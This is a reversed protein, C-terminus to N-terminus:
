LEIIVPLIIPRRQLQRKFYGKLVKRVRAKLEIWDTREGAPVAALTERVLELAQDLVAKEEEFILGKTTIEPGYVVEGSSANIAMVVMAVGDRSLHKRDHIIVDSSEGVGKGDVLIKGTEISGAISIDEPTLEVLDGDTAVIINEGALGQERALAAHQVLHRYEGHVPMFAQPKVLNLLLRLEERHAHGSTHTFALPRYLVRAGARYLRNILNNIAKENGPIFRSSFIITDDGHVRLLRNNGGALIALGSMPEGQSGTTVLLSEAPPLENLEQIDVLAGAPIDIIGEERAVRVNNLLSRGYLATRRGQRWALRIVEQIRLLNSSFMSIIVRGPCSPLLTALAERVEREPASFGANEINTSDALLLRVGRRGLRAFEALDTYDDGLPTQDIKFDGSHVISGAPTELHLAVGRPISHVVRIFEVTFNTTRVQEGPEVPIFETAEALAFERLKSRILALTFPTGYVPVEGLEPLVFPLAGIHDEHGHTIIIGKLRERNERLYTTDPIVLDVGLMYPEPFMLGCDVVLIEDGAEVVLMNMGIEGLGGLPIIKVTRDSRDLNAAM